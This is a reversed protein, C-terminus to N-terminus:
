QFLLATRILKDHYVVNTFTTYKGSDCSGLNNAGVSVIGRLFFRMKQDILKPFVLGGGSDGQCASTKAGLFGACFRDATVFDAFGYGSEEICKDRDITPLEVIKLQESAKKDDSGTLGWGALTGNLGPPVPIDHFTVKNQLCIPAVHHRFEINDSLLIMVIDLAFNGSLDRYDSYYNLDEIDFYQVRYPEDPSNYTSLQKGATVKYLSPEYAANRRRDWFCHMASIVIRRTLITGGCQYNKAGKVVKYIGVHWPAYTINTESGGVIYPTGVSAQKGCIPRCNLDKLDPSWNGIEDCTLTQQGDDSLEFGTLCNVKAITGSAYFKEGKNTGLIFNDKSYYQIFGDRPKPLARCDLNLCSFFCFLSTTSHSKSLNTLPLPLSHKM